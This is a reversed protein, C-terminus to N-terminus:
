GGAVPSMISVQDGPSLVFTYTVIAGNVVLVGVEEPPVNLRTLLDKLTEGAVYDLIAADGEPLIRRHSGYVRVEITKKM